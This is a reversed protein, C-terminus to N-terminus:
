SLTPRTPSGAVNPSLEYARRFQLKAEDLRRCAQLLLGYNYHTEPEDSQELAARYHSEAEDLKGRLHLLIALNNHADGYAPAFRLAERYHVEAGLPEDHEDLLLALNYHAVPDPDIRLSERYHHIAAEGSGLRELLIAYDRHAAPDDPRLRLAEEYHEIARREEDHTALLNAYAHHADVYDPRLRLAERLHNAAESVGAGTTLFGAYNYHAEVHDPQLSLAQRYHREAGSADGWSNLVVALNVHADAFGPRLELAKRYCEAEDNSWERETGIMAVGRLFWGDATPEREEKQAAAQEDFADIRYLTREPLFDGRLEHAGTETFSYLPLDLLDLVGGTVYLTNPEALSEVRKAIANTHGVWAEEGELRTCEGFHCGARLPLDPLERLSPHERAAIEWTQILRLAFQVATDPSEFLFMHGDGAWERYLCGYQRGLSDAVYRYEGVAAVMRERPVRLWADTHRQIDSFLVTLHRRM